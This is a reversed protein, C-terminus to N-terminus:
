GHSVSRVAIDGGVVAARVSLIGSVVIAVGVVAARV